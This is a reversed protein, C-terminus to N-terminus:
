ALGFMGAVGHIFKIAAGFKKKGKATDPLVAHVKDLVDLVAQTEDKIPNGSGHAETVKTLEEAVFKIWEDSVEKANPILQITTGALEAISTALDKQEQTLAM